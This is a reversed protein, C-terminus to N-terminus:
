HSGDLSPAISTCILKSTFIILYGQILMGKVLILREEFFKAVGRDSLPCKAFFNLMSRLRLFHLKCGNQAFVADFGFIERTQYFNATAMVLCDVFSPRKDQVEQVARM